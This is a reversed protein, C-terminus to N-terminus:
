PYILQRLRIPADGNVSIQGRCCGRGSRRSSLGSRSLSPPMSSQFAYLVGDQTAEEDYPAPMIREIGVGDLYQHDIRLRAMGDVPVGGGLHIRVLIPSEVRGFREYEVWLPGSPSGETARSLPGQGFLGLLAAGVTMAIIVWGVRQLAWSRRQFAIDQHIELNGIFSSGTSTDQKEHVM